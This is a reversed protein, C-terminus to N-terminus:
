NQICLAMLDLLISAVGIPVLKIAIANDESLRVAALITNNLFTKGCGLSADIFMLTQEKLEINSTIQEFIRKQDQNFNERHKLTNQPDQVSYQLEEEM